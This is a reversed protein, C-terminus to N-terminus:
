RWVRGSPARCRASGRSVTMSRSRWPAAGFDTDAFTFLRVPNGQGSENGTQGVALRDGAANLSVSLGFSSGGFIDPVAVDNPGAYGEGITGVLQPGAFANDSFSFLYVAGTFPEL